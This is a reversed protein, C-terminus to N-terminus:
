AIASDAHASNRHFAASKEKLVGIAFFGPKVKRVFGDVPAYVPPHKMNIGSQGLGGYNLDVGVHPNSAPATRPGYAYGGKETIGASYDGVPHLISDLIAQIERNSAVQEIEV